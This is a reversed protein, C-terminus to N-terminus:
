THSHTSWFKQLGDGNHVKSGLNKITILIQYFMHFWSWYYISQISFDTTKGIIIDFKLIHKNVVKNISYFDYNIKMPNMCM